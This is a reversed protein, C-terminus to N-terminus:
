RHALEKKKPSMKFLCCSVASYNSAACFLQSFLLGWLYGQIGYRPILFFVSALRIALSATNILFSVGTHGLGHLISSMTTSLYLFPCIFSLILIFRGALENHFFFRGAFRGTLLFLICCLGGFALCCACTRKSARRIKQYDVREQAESIVPLLLVSFSNTLTSPFLIFPMAMGNLVGYVSLAQADSLGCSILKVPIYVAEVSALLNVVVRSLSLPAAMRVIAALASRLSAPARSLAPRAAPLPGDPSSGASPRLRRRFRALVLLGTLMSSCIEGALLGFVACSIGLRCGHSLSYEYLLFVSTVRVLQEMLQSFAPIKTNKIGYYYGNICSHLSAFPISVAIIRILPETRPECLLRAAIMRSNGALLLACAFSLAGSLFLGALLFRFSNKYDRTGPEGAVYKSIATQIGACCVSFSLALVPSVLQYIGMGEAGFTRSLFIRYFFGIVRTAFGTLTLILTGKLLIKNM